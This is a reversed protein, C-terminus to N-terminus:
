REVKQGLRILLGDLIEDTEDLLHDRIHIDPKVGELKRSGNIRVIYGKPVKVTIGTRPLTYSFQSAYLTPVDGTEEGVIKAFGYDQMLAASVAAMSYTQRNVLVYVEGNFRRSKELPPYAPFDYSFIQGEAHELIARSYGDTTDAQLRTHAKLVKSTRVSFESYWKFPKNAVYSILYDSYANHGGPNNRLDIILKKIKHNGIVTFTSDIFKKFLEEGNKESSGFQGANLYAINGYLRVARQPNVVEGNRNGEYDMVAISAVKLTLIQNNGKRIQINWDDKKGNLQFFLRPFSWFEMKANKFYDREASVFPYLQQQIEGIAKGDIALLQDGASIDRNASFNKRVWVKGDEFALELPFVTGGGYAYAIYSQAPFDIECHGTGAFSVLKQYLSVTQLLTLSDKRLGSRLQGFLRDYSQQEKFAFLNYHTAQLSRYLYDLDDGVAQASLKPAAQQALSIKALCLLGLM